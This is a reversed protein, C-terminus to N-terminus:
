DNRLLVNYGSSETVIMDEKIEFKEIKIGVKLMKGLLAIRTEIVSIIQVNTSAEINKHVSDLFSKTIICRVAGTNIMVNIKRKFVKAEAFYANQPKYELEDDDPLKNVIIYENEYDKKKFERIEELLNNWKIQKRLPNSNNTSKGGLLVD